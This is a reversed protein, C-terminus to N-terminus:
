DRGLALVLAALLIVLGWVGFLYLYLPPIGLWAERGALAQQVQLLLPSFLLLLAVLFLAALRQRTLSARPM